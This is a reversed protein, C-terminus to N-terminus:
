GWADGFEGQQLGSVSSSTESQPAYECLIAAVTTFSHLHCTTEDPSATSSSSSSEFGALGVPGIEGNAFFGAVVPALKQISELDVNAVGGFLGRGRAVCSIQVAALARAKGGGGQFLRATQARQVMLQLDQKATRGDRVQFCFWDGPEINPTGLAIGNVSPVFGMLPRSLFDGPPTNQANDDEKQVSVRQIGCLLAESIQKQEETSATDVLNRLVKLAPQGDLQTIINDQCATVKYLSGQVPRCGQAVMTQLGWNGAMALGVVSGKPQLCKGNVALSPQDAFFPCTLGGAVVRTGHGTLIEEVPAWPDAFVLCSTFRDPLNQFISPAVNTHNDSDEQEQQPQEQEQEQPQEVNYQVIKLEAGAPLSGLLVSLGPEQPNDIEMNQGAVGGGLIAAFEIGNGASSIQRHAHAVLAEFDDAHAQSVFLMVVDITSKLEDDVEKMYINNWANFPDAHTSVHSQWTSTMTTTTAHLLRSPVTQPPTLSFALQQQRTLFADVRSTPFAIMMMLLLTWPPVVPRWCSQFISMYPIMTAAFCFTYLREEWRVGAEITSDPKIRMM